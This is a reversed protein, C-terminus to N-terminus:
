GGSRRGWGSDGETIARSSVVTDATPSAVSVRDGGSQASIGETAFGVLASMGLFAVGLIRAIKM